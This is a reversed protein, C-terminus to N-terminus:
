SATARRLLPAYRADIWEALRVAFRSERAGKRFVFTAAAPVFALALLLSGFLAMAVTLAEVRAEDAPSLGAPPVRPRRGPRKM